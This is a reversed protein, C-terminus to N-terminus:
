VRDNRWLIGLVLSDAESFSTKARSDSISCAAPVGGGTGSPAAGTASIVRRAATGHRNLACAPRYLAKDLWDDGSHVRSGFCCIGDKAQRVLGLHVLVNSALTM